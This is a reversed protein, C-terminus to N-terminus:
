NANKEIQKRRELMTPKGFMKRITNFGIEKTINNSLLGDSVYELAKLFVEPDGNRLKDWEERTKAFCYICGLRKSYNYAKHLQWKYKKIIDYVQKETYHLIPRAMRVNHISHMVKTKSNARFESEEARWGQCLICKDKDINKLFDNLPNIKWTRTCWSMYPLPFGNKEFMEKKEKESYEKGITEIKFGHEKAFTVVFEKLNPYDLPTSNFLLTIKNKDINNELLDAVLAMSDKGGSFMVYINEFSNIWEYMPINQENEPIDHEPHIDRDRKGIRNEPIDINIKLETDSLRVLNKLDDDLESIWNGLEEIEFEGFQSTIGLLKQRADKEDEAEIYCVPIMPIIYGDERLSQLAKLRQHGDLIRCWDNERWVFLPVNIGDRIIRKKLKELNQKTIKKLNGQFNELSDFPLLDAGKCTIKIEHKQSM